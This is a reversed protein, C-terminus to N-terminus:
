KGRAEIWFVISQLCDGNGSAERRGEKAVAWQFHGGNKVKRKGETKNELGNAIL